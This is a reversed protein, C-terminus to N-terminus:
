GARQLDHMAAQAQAVWDVSRHRHMLRRDPFKLSPHENVLMFRYFGEGDKAACTEYRDFFRKHAELLPLTLLMLQVHPKAYSYNEGGPLDDFCYVSRYFLAHRPNTAILFRDIRAYYFSYQYLFKFLFLVLTRQQQCDRRIALASVEALRQGLVRFKEISAAHAKDVPLGDPSDSVISATGLLQDQCAIVFVTRMPSYMHPNTRFLHDDDWYGEDIYNRCVLANAEAIEQPNRAVRIVINPNNLSPTTARSVM